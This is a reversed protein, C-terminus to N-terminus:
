KVAVHEAKDKLMLYVAAAEDMQAEEGSRYPGWDRGKLQFVGVDKTLAAKVPGGAFAVADTLPDFTELDAVRKALLGSGGHITDPLRILRSIDATVQKDTDEMDKVAFEKVVMDRLVKPIIERHWKGRELFDLYKERNEVIGRVKLKSLGYRDRLTQEDSNVIGEMTKFIRGAWGNDQRKPGVGVPSMIMKPRGAKYKIGSPSDDDRIFFEIDLGAGTIYDVIERRADTNLPKVDDSGVHIHYGKSGSFNVSIDKRDFGFDDELFALLNGAEAKVEELHKGNLLEMPKDLDFVLDAGRWCKDAMPQSPYEYYATSYSIYYPAETKLYQNLERETAFAKHRFKIKDELTGVGFERRHVERPASVSHNWYYDKFRKKLFVKTETNM